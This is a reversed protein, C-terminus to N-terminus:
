ALSEPDREIQRMLGYTEDVAFALLLTKTRVSALMQDHDPVRSSEDAGELMLALGVFQEVRAARQNEDLGDWSRALERDYFEDASTGERILLAVDGTPPAVEGQLLDGALGRLDVEARGPDLQEREANLATLASRMPRADSALTDGSAPASVTAPQRLRDLIGM